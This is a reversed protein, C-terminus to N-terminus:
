ARRHARDTFRYTIRARRLYVSSSLIRDILAFGLALSLGEENLTYGGSPGKVSQFFRTERVSRLDSEFVINQKDSQGNCITDLLRGAAQSLAFCLDEPSQTEFADVQTRRIHEFLLGEVTLGKWAKPNDRPLVSLAIGLLRPNLLSKLTTTDLSSPDIEAASLIQDREAASWDSVTIKQPRDFGRQVHREFFRPRSTVLLKGGRDEVFGELITLIRDGPSLLGKTSEMWSLYSAKM